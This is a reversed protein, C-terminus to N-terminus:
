IHVDSPESYCPNRQNEIPYPLVCNTLFSWMICLISENNSFTCLLAVMNVHFHAFIVRFDALDFYINLPYLEFQYVPEWAQLSHPSVILMLFVFTIPWPMTERGDISMSLTVSSATSLKVYRPEVISLLIDSSASILVRMAFSAATM